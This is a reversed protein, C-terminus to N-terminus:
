NRYFEGCIATVFESRVPSWSEAPLCATYLRQLLKRRTRNHLSRAQLEDLEKYSRQARHSTANRPRAQWQRSHGCSYVYRNREQSTSDFQPRIHEKGNRNCAEGVNGHIGSSSSSLQLQGMFPASPYYFARDSRVTKPQIGLLNIFHSLEQQEYHGNQENQNEPFQALNM